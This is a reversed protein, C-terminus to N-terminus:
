LVASRLRVGEARLARLLDRVFPHEDAQLGAPNALVIM